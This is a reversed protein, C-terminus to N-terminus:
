SPIVHSGKPIHLGAALRRAGDAGCARSRSQGRGPRPGRPTAKGSFEADCSHPQEGARDTALRGKPTSNWLTRWGVAGNDPATKYASVIRGHM